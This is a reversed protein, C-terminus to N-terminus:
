KRECDRRGEGYKDQSHALLCDIIEIVIGRGTDGGLDNVRHQREQSFEPSVRGAGVMKAMLDRLMQLFSARFDSGQDIGIRPFNDERAAAGFAVVRRNMAREDAMRFLPVDKGGTDLMGRVHLEAIKKLLLTVRYSEQRDFGVAREVEVQEFFGNTGVGGDSGDHPGIVFGAYYKGNLFNRGNAAAFACKKM